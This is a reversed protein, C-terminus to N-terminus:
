TFYKRNKLEEIFPERLQAAGSVAGALLINTYTHTTTAPPSLITLTQTYVGFLLSNIAGVSYIPYSLGKLLSRLGDQTLSFVM